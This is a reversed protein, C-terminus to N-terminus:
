QNTTLSLFFRPFGYSLMSFRIFVMPVHHYSYQVHSVFLCVISFLCRQYTFQSHILYILPSEITHELLNSYCHFISPHYPPTVEPVCVFLWPFDADKKPVHVFKRQAIKLLQKSVCLWLTNMIASSWLEHPIVHYEAMM